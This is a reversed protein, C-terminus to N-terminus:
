LVVPGTVIICTQHLTLHYRGHHAASRFANLPVRVPTGSHMRQTDPSRDSKTQAHLNHADLCPPEAREM